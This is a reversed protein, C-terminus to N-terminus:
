GISSRKNLRAHFGDQDNPIEPQFKISKLKLFLLNHTKKPPHKEKKLLILFVMANCSRGGHNHPLCTFLNSKRILLRCANLFLKSQLM